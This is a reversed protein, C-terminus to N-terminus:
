VTSPSRLLTGHLIAETFFWAASCNILNKKVILSSARYCNVRLSYALNDDGLNGFKHLTSSNNFLLMEGQDVQFQYYEPINDLWELSDWGAKDGVAYVNDLGDAVSVYKLMSGHVLIVKKSGRAMYYANYTPCSDIHAVGSHYKGYFVLLTLRINSIHKAAFKGMPGANPMLFQNILMEEKAGTSALTPKYHELLYEPIEAPLNTIIVPIDGQIYKALDMDASYPIRDPVIIKNTKGQASHKYSHKYHTGKFYVTIWQLSSGM